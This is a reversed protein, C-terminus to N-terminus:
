PLKLLVRSDFFMDLAATGIEIVEVAAYMTQDDSFKRMAKSDVEFRIHAGPDNVGAASNVHVGFFRHYLWLEADDETLPTPVSVIGATFAATEVIGIGIAGFFGDGAAAGSELLAEFYGRLRVLTVDSLSTLVIGAGLFAASSVTVGNVGTGGPGVGWSTKRRPGRIRPSSFGRRLQAM